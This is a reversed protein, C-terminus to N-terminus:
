FVWVFCGADCLQPLYLLFPRMNAGFTSMHMPIPFIVLDAIFALVAMVTLAKAFTRDHLIGLQWEPVPEYRHM